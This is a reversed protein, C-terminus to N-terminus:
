FRLEIPMLDGAAFTGGGKTAKTDPDTNKLRFFPAVTKGKPPCSAQKKAHYHDGDFHETPDCHDPHFEIQYNNCKYGFSYTIKGDAKVVKKMGTATPFLNPIKNPDDPFKKGTYIPSM